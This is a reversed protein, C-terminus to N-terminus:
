INHITKKYINVITMVHITICIFKLIDVEFVEGDSCWMELIYLFTSIFLYYMFDLIGKEIEAEHAILVLITYFINASNKKHYKNHNM